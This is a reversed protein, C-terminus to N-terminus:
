FNRLGKRQLYQILENPYDTCIINAGKEIIWGWNEDPNEIEKSDHHIFYLSAWLSNIWVRSGNDKLYESQNMITDGERIFIEIAYPQLKKLQHEM